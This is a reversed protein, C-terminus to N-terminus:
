TVSSAASDPTCASSLGADVVGYSTYHPTVAYLQQINEATAIEAKTTPRQDLRNDRSSKVTIIMGDPILGHEAWSPSTIQGSELTKISSEHIRDWIVTM